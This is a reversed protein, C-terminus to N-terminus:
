SNNQFFIEDIFLVMEGRKQNDKVKKRVLFFFRILSEKGRFPLSFLQYQSNTQSKKEEM